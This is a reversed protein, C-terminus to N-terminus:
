AGAPVDAKWDSDPVVGAKSVKITVHERHLLEVVEDLHEELVSAAEPEVCRLRLHRGIANRRRRDSFPRDITVLVANHQQAYVTLDDDSEAALGANDATWYTHGHRRLM